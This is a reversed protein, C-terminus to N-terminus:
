NLLIRSTLDLVWRYAIVKDYGDFKESGFNFLVGVLPNNVLDVNITTMMKKDIFDILWIVQLDM